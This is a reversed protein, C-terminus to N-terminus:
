KLFLLEKTLLLQMNLMIEQNWTISSVKGETLEALVSLGIGAIQGNYDTVGIQAWHNDKILDERRHGLKTSFKQFLYSKVIIKKVMLKLETVLMLIIKYVPTLASGFMWGAKTKFVQENREDDEKYDTISLIESLM